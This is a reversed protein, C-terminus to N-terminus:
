PLNIARIRSAHRGSEAWAVRRGVISLGIPWSAAHGIVHPAGQQGNLAYIAKGVHYIITSGSASLRPSSGPTFDTSPPRPLVVTRPHPLFIEIRAGSRNRVLAALTSASVALATVRGGAEFRGLSSGSHSKLLVSAEAPKGRTLVAVAFRGGGAGLATPHSLKGTVPHSRLGVWRRIPGPTGTAAYVSSGDSSVPVIAAPNSVGVSEDDLFRSGKDGLAESQLEEDIGDSSYIGGQWYARRGALAMADTACGENAVGRASWRRGTGPDLLTLQTICNQNPPTLWALYRRSQAFQSVPGLILALTGPQGPGVAGGFAAPAFVVVAVVVLM